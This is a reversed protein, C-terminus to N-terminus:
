FLDLENLIDPYELVCLSLMVLVGHRSSAVADVDFIKLPFFSSAILFYPVTVLLLDFM